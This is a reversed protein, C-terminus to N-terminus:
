EENFKSWNPMGITQTGYGDWRNNSICDAIKEALSNFQNIGFEIAEEDLIYNAVMYPDTKEVCLFIFNELKIGISDLAKSAMAAQIHYGGKYIDNKFERPNASRTTKLDTVIGGIMADPRSKFQLGTNECTWFISREINAGDILQAAMKDKRISHVMAHAKDMMEQTVITKGASEDVFIQYDEKGQKTRRDISPMVIYERAFLDPELAVTHVLSGLVMDPTPEPKVYDPNLYKHWYHYPSRKFEWLGSRSVGSATHYQENSIDYVGDKFSTETM